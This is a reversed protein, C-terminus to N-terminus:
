YFTRSKARLLATGGGDLGRPSKQQLAPGLRYSQFGHGRLDAAGMGVQEVMETRGRPQLTSKGPGNRVRYSGFDCRGDLTGTFALGVSAIDDVLGEVREAAFARSREGGPHDEGAIAVREIWDQFGQLGQDRLEADAVLIVLDGSAREADHQTCQAVGKEAGRDGIREAKGAIGGALEGRLPEPLPEGDIM